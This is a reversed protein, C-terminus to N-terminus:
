VTRFHQPIGELHVLRRVLEILEDWGRARYIRRGHLEEQNRNYRQDWIVAHGAPHRKLWRIVHEPKDDVFIDGFVLEKLGTHIMKKHSLGFHEELWLEREHVWTAGGKFPSTVMVIEVLPKLQEVAEKAGAYPTMTLCGNPRKLEEYIGHRLHEHEALAVSDFPDWTDVDDHSYEKGTADHVLSLTASTFDALVGDCDLLLTPKSWDLQDKVDM